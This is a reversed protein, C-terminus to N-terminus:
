EKCYVVSNVVLLHMKKNGFTLCFFCLDFLLFLVFVFLAVNTQQNRLKRRYHM